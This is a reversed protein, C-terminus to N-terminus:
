KAPEALWQQPDEPKGDFRVEFYLEARGDEPQWAVTGLTAGAELAAGKAVALKELHGYVTFLGRGHDLVILDEFGRFPGAHVVSGAAASRVTAGEAPGLVLGRQFKKVAHGQEGFRELLKAGPVPALLRGRLAAPDTMAASAPTRSRELKVVAEQMTSQMAELDALYKAYLQQNRKLAKLSEKLGGEREALQKREGDLDARLARLREVTTRLEATKASLAQELTEYQKLAAQDLAQVRALLTADRAFTRTRALQFLTASRETKALRYLRRLRLTIRSRSGEARGTLEALEADQQTQQAATKALETELERTRRRHAKIAEALSGIEQLTEQESVKFGAVQRQMQERESQVQELQQRQSQLLEPKDQAFAPASALALLGAFGALRALPGAAFSAPRASPGSAFSALRTLLRSAFSALRVLLLAGTSM